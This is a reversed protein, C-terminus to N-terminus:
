FYEKMIVNVWEPIKANEVKDYQPYYPKIDLIPTGNIADLGKVYIINDKVDMLEVTTIGLPNPRNKARQAFIGVSPLEERNQPKRCLHKEESFEAKDLHYIITLHSFDKLGTLGKELEKNIEIQSYVNGWNTVMKEEIDTKVYGIYTFDM